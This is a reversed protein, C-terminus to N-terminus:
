RRRTSRRGLVAIGPLATLFIILVSPEPVASFALGVLNSSNAAYSGILGLGGNTTDLTYLSTTGSDVLFMTNDEPRSAIDFAFGVGLGAIFAGNGSLTSISILENTLDAIGFLNGNQDFGLAFVDSFGIAGIVTTNGTTPDIEFLTDAAAGFGVSTNGFLRGSVPDFALSVMNEESNLAVSNVAAGTTPDIEVLDNEFINIGWVTFSGARTDSTLDGIDDIGVPGIPSISGNTQDVSFLPTPGSFQVSFLETANGTAALSLFGAFAVGVIRSINNVNM